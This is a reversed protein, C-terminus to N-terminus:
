APLVSPSPAAAMRRVSEDGAARRSPPEAARRSPPEAARRSPPEAARRSPPEAARRSPPEASMISRARAAITLGRPPSEQPSHGPGAAAGEGVGYGSPLGSMATDVRRLRGEAWPVCAGVRASVRMGAQRLINRAYWVGTWESDPPAHSTPIPTSEGCGNPGASVVRAPMEQRDMGPGELGHDSDKTGANSAGNSRDGDLTAGADAQRDLEAEVAEQRAGPWRPTLAPEVDTGVFRDTESM